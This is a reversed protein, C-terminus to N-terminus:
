AHAGPVLRRLIMYDSVLAAHPKRELIVTSGHRVAYDVVAAVGSDNLNERYGEWIKGETLAAHADPGVGRARQSDNLHIMVCDHPIVDSARELEHLWDSAAEYTRLDVGCTWLHATDFCLGFKDLRPDVEARVRAFLEALKAPTEYFSEAPRVAPTELYIRVSPARPEILQAAHRLVEAAPLKPLHVVLGAIGAAECVLQEERIYRAAEHDGKWPHAAYSSHAIFRIGTRAVYARLQKREDERLTIHRSKPGGVFISAATLKIDAARRAEELAAEVHEVMDPRTGPAHDRNVHIGIM